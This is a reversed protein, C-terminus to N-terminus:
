GTKMRKVTYVPKQGKWPILRDIWSGKQPVSTVIKFINEGLFIAFLRREKHLISTLKQLIPIMINIKLVVGIKKSSRPRFDDEYCRGWIAELSVNRHYHHVNIQHYSEIAGQLHKLLVRFKFFQVRFPQERKFFGLFDIEHSLWDAIGLLHMSHQGKAKTQLKVDRGHGKVGEKQGHWV